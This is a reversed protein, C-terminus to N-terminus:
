AVLELAEPVEADIRIRRATLDHEIPSHRQLIRPRLHRRLILGGSQTQHRPAVHPPHHRQRPPHRALLRRLPPRSAPRFRLRPDRHHPPLPERRAAGCLFNMAGVVRRPPVILIGVVIERPPADDLLRFSTRTAVDLIPENKPANLIGEPTSRGLRRIATLTRFLLIERPTVKRVADYVQEPPADVEIAHEEDFQWKTFHQDLLTNGTARKLEPVPWFLAAAAVAVGSAAVIAGTRRSRKRLMAIAGGLAAAAGGYLVFSDIM